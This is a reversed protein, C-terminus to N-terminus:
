GHKGGRGDSGAAERVRQGSVGDWYSCLAVSEAQEWQPEWCEGHSRLPAPPAAPPIESATGRRGQVSVIFVGWELSFIAGHGSKATIPLGAM